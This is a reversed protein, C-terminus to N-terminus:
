KPGIKLGLKLFMYNGVFCLAGTIMLAGAYIALMVANLQLSGMALLAVGLVLAVFIIMYVTAWRSIAGIRERLQGPHKKESIVVFLPAGVIFCVLTSLNSHQLFEAAAESIFGFLILTLAIVGFALGIVLQLAVLILAQKKVSYTNNSSEM